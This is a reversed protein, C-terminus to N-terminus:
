VGQSRKGTLHGRDAPTRLAGIPLVACRPATMRLDEDAVAVVRNLVLLMHQAKRIPEPGVTDVGLDILVVDRRRLAPRPPAPPLDLGSIEYQHDAGLGIM